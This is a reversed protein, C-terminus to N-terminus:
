SALRGWFWTCPHVPRHPAPVGHVGDGRLRSHASRPPAMAPALVV